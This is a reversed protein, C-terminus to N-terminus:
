IVLIASFPSITCSQQVHEPAIQWAAMLAALAEYLDALETVPEDPPAQGAEQAEEVLKELL